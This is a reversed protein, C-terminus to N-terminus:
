RGINDSMRSAQRYLQDMGERLVWARQAMNHTGQAKKITQKVLMMSHDDM